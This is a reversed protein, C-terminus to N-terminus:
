FPPLNNENSIHLEMVEQFRSVLYYRLVEIRIFATTPSHLFNELYPHKKLYLLALDDRSEESSIEGALGMVTVAKAAHFDKERNSRNDILLSVKPNNKMNAFKRTSKPTALVIRHLDETAAFAVLTAYAFGEPSLTSLVALKQSALLAAIESKYKSKDTM